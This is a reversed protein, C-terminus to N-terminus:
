IHMDGVESFCVFPEELLKALDAKTPLFRANQITNM